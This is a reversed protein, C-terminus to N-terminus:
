RQLFERTRPLRPSRFIRDPSGEELVQRDEMVIAAGSALAQDGTGCPWRLVSVKTAPSRHSPMVAGHMRSPGMLASLKRAQTTCNRTGIRRGPSMTTISLRLLWLAGAM